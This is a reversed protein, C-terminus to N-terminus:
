ESTKSNKIDNGTNVQRQVKDYAINQQQNITAEWTDIKSMGYPTEDEALVDNNAAWTAYKKNISAVTTSEKNRLIQYENKETGAELANAFNQNIIDINEKKNEKINQYANIEESELNTEFGIEKDEEEIFPLIPEGEAELQMEMKENHSQLRAFEDNQQDYLKKPTDITNANKAESREDSNIVESIVEVQNAPSSLIERAQNEQNRKAANIDGDFFFEELALNNAEAYEYKKVDQNIESNLKANESKSLNAMENYANRELKLHTLMYEQHNDEAHDLGHGLCEEYFAVYMEDIEIQEQSKPSMSLSQSKPKNSYSAARGAGVGGSSNMLDDQLESAYDLQNFMANLAQPSQKHLQAIVDNLRREDSLSTFLDSATSDGVSQLRFIEQCLPLVWDQTYGEDTLWKKWEGLTRVLCASTEQNYIENIAALATIAEANEEALAFTNDPTSNM